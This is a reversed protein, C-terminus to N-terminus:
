GALNARYDRLAATAAALADVLEPLLPEGAATDGDDGCLELELCLAGVAAAGLNLASGKLRHASTRLLEADGAEVAARIEELAAGAGAIFNTVAKDVLAAAGPGMELLM